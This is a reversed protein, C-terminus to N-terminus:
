GKSIGNAKNEDNFYIYMFRYKNESMYAYIAEDTVDDKVEILSGSELSYLM